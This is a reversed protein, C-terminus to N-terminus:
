QERSLQEQLLDRIQELIGIIQINQYYLAKLEEELYISDSSAFSHIKEAKAQAEEAELAFSLPAGAALILLFALLCLSTKKM